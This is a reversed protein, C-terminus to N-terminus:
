INLFQHKILSGTEDANLVAELESETLPKSFLFGQAIDCGRESLLVLQEQTEGGEAVVKLGPGTLV